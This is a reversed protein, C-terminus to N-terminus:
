DGGVDAEGKLKRITVVSEEIIEKFLNQSLTSGLNLYTNGGIKSEYLLISLM